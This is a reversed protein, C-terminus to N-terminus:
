GLEPLPKLFSRWFQNTGPRGITIAPLHAPDDYGYVLPSSTGDTGVEFGLAQAVPWTAATDWYKLTPRIHVFVDALGQWLEFVDVGISTAQLIEVSSQQVWPNAKLDNKSVMLRVRASAADPLPAHAPADIRVLDNTERKYHWAGYGPGGAFGQKYHPMYFCGFVATEGDVLGIMVSWKGTKDVYYKTGDIPDILWRRKGNAESIWPAEESLVDDDPFRAALRAIILESLRKDASTVLDDASGKTDVSVAERMSEALEGAEACLLMLFRIDEDTLAKHTM